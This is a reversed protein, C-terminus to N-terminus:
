FFDHANQWVSKLHLLDLLLVVQEELQELM